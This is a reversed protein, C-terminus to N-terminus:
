EDTCTGRLNNYECFYAPSIANNIDRMHCYTCGSFAGANRSIFDRLICKRSRHVETNALASSLPERTRSVKANPPPYSFSVSPRLCNKYSAIANPIHPCERWKPLIGLNNSCRPVGRQMEM